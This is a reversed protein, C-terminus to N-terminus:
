DEGSQSIEVRKESVLMMAAGFDRRDVQRLVEKWFDKAEDVNKQSWRAWFRYGDEMRLRNVFVAADGRGDPGWQFAAWVGAFAEQREGTPMGERVNARIWQSLPTEREEPRSTFIIGQSERIRLERFSRLRLDWTSVETITVPQIVIATLLVFAIIGGIGLVLTSAAIRRTM